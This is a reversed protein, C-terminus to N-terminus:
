ARPGPEAPRGRRWAAIAWMAALAAALGYWTIAYGLHENRINVVTQGGVPLGGPNPTADAEVVVPQVGSVRAHAAMADLEYWFWTEEQPRNDPQLFSVRGPVRGLGVVEVVGEARAAARDAPTRRDHPVFGRNVLVTGAGDARVLPTVVHWGAQGRWARGAIMLERDHLFTGRVRVPRYEWADPDDIRAPLDVPPLATRADIREILDTKWQLRQVQWTGLGFLIAFGIAAFVTPWLAPRFAGATASTV